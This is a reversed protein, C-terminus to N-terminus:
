EDTVAETERGPRGRSGTSAFLDSANRVDMPHGSRATHTAPREDDQRKDPAVVVVM